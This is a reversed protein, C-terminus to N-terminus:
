PSEVIWSDQSPDSNNRLDKHENNDNNASKHQETVLRKYIGVSPSLEGLPGVSVCLSLSLSLSLPFRFFVRWAAQMRLLVSRHSSHSFIQLSFPITKPVLEERWSMLLTHTWERDRETERQQDWKENWDKGPNTFLKHLLFLIVPAKKKNTDRNQHEQNEPTYFQITYYHGLIM